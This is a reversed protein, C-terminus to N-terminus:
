LGRIMRASLVTKDQLFSSLVLPPQIGGSGTVAIWLPIHPGSRGSILPQIHIEFFFCPISPWHYSVLFELGPDYVWWIIVFPSRPPTLEFSLLGAHPGVILMPYAPFGILNRVSRINQSRRRINKSM